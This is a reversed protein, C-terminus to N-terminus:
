SRAPGPSATRRGPSASGSPGRAGAPRASATASSVAWARGPPGTMASSRKRRRAYGWASTFRTAPALWQGDVGFWVGDVLKLPQSWVGGMEGSIHWGQAYFRGDEFGVVYARQGAAVYRRDQLRDGTSLTPTAAEAVVPMCLLASLAVLVPFRM